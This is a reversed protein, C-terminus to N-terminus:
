AGVDCRIGQSGANVSRSGPQHVESEIDNSDALVDIRSEFTAIPWAAQRRGSAKELVHGVEGANAADDTAEIPTYNLLAARWLEKRDRCMCASRFSTPPTASASVFSFVSRFELIRV